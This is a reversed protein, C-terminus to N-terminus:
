NRPIPQHTRQCGRQTDSQVEAISAQCMYTLKRTKPLAPLQQRQHHKRQRLPNTLSWDMNIKRRKSLLPCIVAEM